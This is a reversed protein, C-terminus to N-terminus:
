APNLAPSEPAGESESIKAAFLGDGYTDQPWHGVEGQRVFIPKGNEPHDVAFVGIRAMALVKRQAIAEIKEQWEDM